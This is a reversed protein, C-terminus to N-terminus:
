GFWGHGTKTEKKGEIEEARTAKTINRMNHKWVAQAADEARITGLKKTGAYLRYLKM